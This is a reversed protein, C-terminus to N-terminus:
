LEHYGLAVTYHRMDPGRARVLSCEEADWGSPLLEFDVADINQAEVVLPFHRRVPSTEIRQSHHRLKPNYRNSLCDFKSVRGHHRFLCSRIAPTSLCHPTKDTITSGFTQTARDPFVQKGVPGHRGGFLPGRCALYHVSFRTAM